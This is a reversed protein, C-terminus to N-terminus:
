GDASAAADGGFVGGRHCFVDDYAGAEDAAVDGAPAASVGIFRMSSYLSTITGRMEKDIGETILADQSPLVMGIGTGCVILCAIVFYINNFFGIGFLAGTALVLGAVGLWKMLIKNKGIKKGTLYSALCLAALPVALVLGKIVGNLGHKVELQESLYFLVGFLM